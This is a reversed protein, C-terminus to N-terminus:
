LRTKPYSQQRLSSAEFFGCGGRRERVLFDDFVPFGSDFCKAFDEGAFLSGLLFKKVGEIRKVLRVFLHNHQQDLRRLLGAPPSKPM